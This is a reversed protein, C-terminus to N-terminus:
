NTEKENYKLPLICGLLINDTYILIPNVPNIVKFTLNKGFPKLLKEDFYVTHNESKLKGIVNKGDIIKENSLTADEFDRIPILRKVDIFKKGQTIKTKDFIFAEEPILWMFSGNTVVGVTKTDYAGLLIRRGSYYETAIHNNIFKYDM